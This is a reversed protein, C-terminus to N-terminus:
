EMSIFFSIGLMRGFLDRQMRVEQVNNGSKFKIKAAESTFNCIKVRQIPRNFRDPSVSCESIFKERLQNGVSEMDLLFNTINESASKGNSINHLLNKDLSYDFPNMFKTFGNIFTKLLKTDRKINHIELDNTVDQGKQLGAAKYTYSIVSSFIEHSKCWRQRALISNTFNIIGVLRKAAEVNITQKLSLDIPQRSFSKHTRQIGLCGKEMAEGIEPHTEGITLLNNHYKVLWRAYNPQNLVFFLIAVKPLVYKFIEFDGTRISRNSSHYYNILNIYTTYFQVTKGFVGNLCAERHSLYSNMLESMEENDLVATLSLRGEDFNRLETRLIDRITINRNGVFLQFNLIELGLSMIPHIRKCRNFHKGLLFSEVSGSALLGSDVAINMLGCGAIFKGVAEFYAIMVHFTGLHIFLSDYTPSKASQIQMAVKAIALDYSVSISLERLEAAIKLSQNM